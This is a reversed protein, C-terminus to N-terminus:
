RRAERKASRCGPGSSVSAPMSRVTVRSPSVTIILSTSTVAPSMSAVFPRTWTTSPTRTGGVQDGVIASRRGVVSLRCGARSRTLPPALHPAGRAAAPVGTSRPVARIGSRRAGSRRRTTRRCRAAVVGVRRGGGWSSRTGSCGRVAGRSRADSRMLPQCVAFLRDAPGHWSMVHLAVVNYVPAGLPVPEMLQEVLPASSWGPRCM